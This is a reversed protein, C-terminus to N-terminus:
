YPLRREPDQGARGSTPRGGLPRRYTTSSCGFRATAAPRPPGTKAIQTASLRPRATSGVRGLMDLQRDVLDAAMEGHHELREPRTGDGGRSGSEVAVDFCDAQRM